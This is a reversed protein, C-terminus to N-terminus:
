VCTEQYCECVPLCVDLASQDVFTALTSKLVNLVGKPDVLQWFFLGIAAGGPLAAGHDDVESM